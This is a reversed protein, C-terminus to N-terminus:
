FLSIFWGVLAMLFLSIFVITPILLTNIFATDKLGNIQKYIDDNIQDNSLPDNVYHGNSKQLPKGGESEQLEKDLQDLDRNMKELAYENFYVMAGRQVVGRYYPVDGEPVFRAFDDFNEKLTKPTLQQLTNTYLGIQILSSHFIDEKIMNKKALPDKSLEMLHRFQIYDPRDFLVEIETPYFVEICYGHDHIYKLAIDMNLFVERLEEESHHNRVWELLTCKTVEKNPFPRMPM